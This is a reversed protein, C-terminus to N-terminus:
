LSVSRLIYNQMCTFGLEDCQKKIKLAKDDTLADSYIIPHKRYDVGIGEYVEKARPAYVLPDGSDQRLGTWREARGKDKVFDKSVSPM